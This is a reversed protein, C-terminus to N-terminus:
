QHKGTAVGERGKATDPTSPGRRDASSWICTECGQDKPKECAKVDPGAGKPEFCGPRVIREPSM